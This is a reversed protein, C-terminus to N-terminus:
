GLDWLEFVRFGFVEFGLGWIGFSDFRFGQVWVRLLVEASDSGAYRFYAAKLGSLGVDFRIGRFRLGTFGFGFDYLM